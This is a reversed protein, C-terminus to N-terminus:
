CDIVVCQAAPDYGLRFRDVTAASLGRRAFYDTEGRHAFCADIDGSSLPEKEESPPASGREGRSGEAPVPRPGNVDGHGYRKSALSLAELPSSLGHDLALLDFLDYDAGCAFSHVKNRKPDFGMSPNRDLHKPNLCRFRRKPDIGREYLYDVIRPRLDDFTDAM